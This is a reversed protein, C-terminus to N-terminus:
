FRSGVTFLDHNLIFVSVDPESLRHESGVQPDYLENLNGSDDKLLKLSFYIVTM